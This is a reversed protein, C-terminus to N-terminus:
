HLKIEPRQEKLFISALTSLIVYKTGKLILLHKKYLVWYALRAFLGEMYLNKAIKGMLNGVVNKQSLSILSGYDKYIYERLPKDQLYNIINEALVHAQQHAAQARPPVFYQEGKKNVQPCSACDGFAFINPKLTTQLFPTVTFQNVKNVELTHTIDEANGKVGAAWVTMASEIFKGNSTILGMNNVASIKTDTAVHIKHTKLYHNVAHAVREPLMSLIRNGAEIINIQFNYSSLGTAKTYKNAISLTHNFEAALEVGTAGGGVINISICKTNDHSSLIIKEILSKNCNEAEQLSDLFLCNEKVGPIGFDNTKSGIALVLVDYGIHQKDNPNVYPAVTLRNQKSCIEIITGPIFKFGKQYSYSMYDIPEVSSLTGAAVEHYIPKWIHKLSNDILTIELNRKHKFKQCLRAILELGGAGGGVVVIKKVPM